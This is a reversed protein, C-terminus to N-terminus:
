LEKMIHVLIYFANTEDYKIIKQEKDYFRLFKLIWSVVINMGQCYGIEPDLHAYANLVNYM